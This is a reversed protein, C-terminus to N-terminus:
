YGVKLNKLTNLIKSEEEAKAKNLNKGFCPAIEKAAAVICLSLLTQTWHSNGTLTYEATNFNASGTISKKIVTSTDEIMYEVKLEVSGSIQLSGDLDQFYIHRFNTTSSEPDLIDLKAKVIQIPLYEGGNKIEIEQPLPEADLWSQQVGKKPM